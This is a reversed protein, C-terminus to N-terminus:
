SGTTKGGYRTSLGLQQNFGHLLGFWVVGKRQCFQQIAMATNPGWVGDPKGLYLGLQQLATQLEALLAPTTQLTKLTVAQTQLTALTLTPPM